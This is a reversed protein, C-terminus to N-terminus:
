IEKKPDEQVAVEKFPPLIKFQESLRLDAL